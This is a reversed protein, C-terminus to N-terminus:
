NLTPRLTMSLSERTRPLLLSSSLVRCGPRSCCRLRFFTTNQAVSIANALSSNGRRGCHCRRIGLALAPEAFVAFCRKGTREWAKSPRLRILLLSCQGRLAGSRVPLRYASFGGKFSFCGRDHRRFAALACAILSAPSALWRLSSSRGHFRSATFLERIFSSLFTGIHRSSPSFGKRGSFFAKIKRIIGWRCPLSYYRLRLPFLLFSAYREYDSGGPRAGGFLTLVIYLVYM